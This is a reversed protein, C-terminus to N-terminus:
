DIQVVKTRSTRGLVIRVQTRAVGFHEAIASVIANNAMGQVPPAKVAVEYTEEDLKKVYAEHSGPKAKVTIRM